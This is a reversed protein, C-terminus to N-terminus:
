PDACFYSTFSVNHWQSANKLARSLPYALWCAVVVMWVIRRASTQKELVIEIVRFILIMFFPVIIAVFRDSDSPAIPFIVLLCALYVIVMIFMLHTKADHKLLFGVVGLVILIVFGPVPALIRMMADSMVNFNHIISQFYTYEQAVSVYINWAWFGSTALLFLVISKRLDWFWLAAGIVFFIGSNRQLCLFFGIIISAVLHKKEVVQTFYFLILLFLLESWLYVGILLLHVGLLISAQCILQLFPDDISKRTQIVVLIGTWAAILLQIWYWVSGFVSLIIPFLPPWYLYREGDYSLFTFNSRFSNAASIYNCSDSTTLLGGQHSYWQLLVSSIVLVISVLLWRM